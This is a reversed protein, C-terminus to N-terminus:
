RPDLALTTAVARPATIADVHESDGYKRHYATDIQERVADADVQRFAVPIRDGGVDLTGEPTTAVRKYWAGDAGRVSRVYVSGGTEVIWIVVTFPDRGNRPLSLTVEGTRGIRELQETSWAM